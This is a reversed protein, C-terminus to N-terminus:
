CKPVIEHHKESAELSYTTADAIDNKTKLPTVIVIVSYTYVDIHPIYVAHLHQNLRHAIFLLGKQGDRGM